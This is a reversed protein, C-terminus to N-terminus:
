FFNIPRLMTMKKKPYYRFWILQFTYDLIRTSVYNQFIKFINHILAVNYQSADFVTM